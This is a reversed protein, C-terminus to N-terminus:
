MNTFIIGIVVYRITAPPTVICYSWFITKSILRELSDGSAPQTIQALALAPPSSVLLVNSVVFVPDKFVNQWEDKAALAM